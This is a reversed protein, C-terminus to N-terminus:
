LDCDKCNREKCVPNEINWKLAWNKINKIINILDKGSRTLSYIRNNEALVKVCAHGIGSNGGVILINKNM